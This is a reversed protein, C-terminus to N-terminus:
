PFPPNITISISVEDEEAKRQKSQNECNNTQDSIMKKDELPPYGNKEVLRVHEDTQYNHLYLNEENYTGAYLSRIFHLVLILIPEFAM